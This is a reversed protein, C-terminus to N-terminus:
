AQEVKWDTISRIKSSFNVGIKIVPRPDSAFQAAYDKQIIQKLAKTSSVNLKFEFLYIAEQTQLVMDIRGASTRYEAEVRFGILRCVIFIVNQYHRELDHKPILDYNYGSFFSALRTLFSDIDGRRIDKVFQNVTSAVQGPNENTYFPVLFKFFGNAVEDNPFGLTYLESEEDYGKITLYGSQYLVPVPNTFITDVNGLEEASMEMSDLEKISLDNERLLKVLFTPTGSEFWYDSIQQQVFTKLLSFPNYVDMCNESFHYGDYKAKLRQRTEETNWGNTEALGAIATSFYDNLEKETIGCLAQCRIDLSLDTLNNLDSFASVKSFKTVGTIFAFRLYRDQTKLVSFFAKLIAHMKDQLEPNDLNQLIPKDYEDVLIVVQRGTKEYARRVLGSLREYPRHEDQGKGYLAEWPLLALNLQNELAEVSDYLGSNLDFHFVPYVNWEKELEAMALGEFLEKQGKFYAELTSLTLSKGFRRPRSLFYYTGISALKHLIATKDVYVFGRKRLDEFSQIGVPYMM